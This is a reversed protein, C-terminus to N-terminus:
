GLSNGESKKLHKRVRDVEEHSMAALERVPVFFVKRVWQQNYVSWYTISGDRHYTNKYATSM